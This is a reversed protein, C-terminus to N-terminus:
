QEILEAAEISRRNYVVREIRVVRNSEDIDRAALPQYVVEYEPSEGKVM